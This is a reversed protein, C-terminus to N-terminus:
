FGVMVKGRVAGSGALAIAEGVRDLPVRDSIMPAFTQWQAALAAAVDGFETPYAISSTMRMEKMLFTVLDVPVPAKHVAVIVATSFRRAGRIITDVVAPAGAADIWIDTAAVPMGQVRETGHLERLRAVVDDDAAITHDAGLSRALDLRAPSLDVSVVSSVGRLKLWAVIGAGVPGAGFIVVSSQATAEARNAAHRAVSLPETLAAVEFPVTEPVSFLNHGVVANRLRVRDSLAGQDSGCGILDSEDVSPNFTVRLGPEVDRVEDGVEVVVGAPEHGLPLPRRGGFPMGGLHAFTVDTGCVGCAQMAIVV